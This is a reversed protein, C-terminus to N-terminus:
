RGKPTPHAAIAASTSPLRPKTGAAEPAEGQLRIPREALYRMVADAELRTGALGIHGDPRLLYFAPGRIGVRALASVNAPDDPIEHVRLLEGLGRMGASPAAQGTVLLNFRMDDLKQFLDEVPGGASLKLQIWPFRDGARPASDPVGALSLSLPSGRYRIGIQSITRFALKRVREITM